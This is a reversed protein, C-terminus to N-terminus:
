PPSCAPSPSPAQPPHSHDLVAVVDTCSCRSAPAFPLAGLGASGDPVQLCPCAAVSCYLMAAGPSPRPRPPAHDGEGMATCRHYPGRDGREALRQYPGTAAREPRLPPAAPAAPGPSGPSRPSSARRRRPRPSSIHTGVRSPGGDRGPAGETIPRRECVAGGTFAGASPHKGPVPQGAQSLPTGKCSAKLHVYTDGM